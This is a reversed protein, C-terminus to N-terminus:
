EVTGPNTTLVGLTIIKEGASMIKLALLGCSEHGVSKERNAFDRAFKVKGFFVEFLHARVAAFDPEFQKGIRSKLPAALQDEDRRGGGGSSAFAFGDSGDTERLAQRVNALFHDDARALWREAGHKPHFAACGAAPKRLDLGARFDIKMEIAIKM